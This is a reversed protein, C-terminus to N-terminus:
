SRERIFIQSLLRGNRDFVREHIITKFRSIVVNVAMESLFNSNLYDLLRATTSATFLKQWIKERFFNNRNASFCTPHAVCEFLETIFNSLSPRSHLTQLSFVYCLRGRKFVLTTYLLVHVLM